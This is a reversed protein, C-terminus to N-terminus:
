PRSARSPSASSRSCRAPRPQRGDGRGRGRDRRLGRGRRGARGAGDTGEELNAIVVEPKLTLPAIGKLEAIHETALKADRLPTEADLATKAAELAEVELGPKGRAKKMAKELASEIVALDALLLDARM